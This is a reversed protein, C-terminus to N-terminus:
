QRLFDVPPGDHTFRVTLEHEKFPDAHKKESFFYFETTHNQM